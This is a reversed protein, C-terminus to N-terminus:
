NTLFSNTKEVNKKKKLSITNRKIIYITKIIARHHKKVNEQCNVAAQKM